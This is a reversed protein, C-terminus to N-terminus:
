QSFNGFVVVVVVVEEEVVVVVFYSLLCKASSSVRRMIFTFSRNCNSCMDTSTDPDWPPKCRALIKKVETKIKPMIDVYTRGSAPEGLTHLTWKDQSNRYLQITWKTLATKRKACLEILLLFFICLSSVWRVFLWRLTTKKVVWKLALSNVDM